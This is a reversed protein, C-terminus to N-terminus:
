NKKMLRLYPTRSVADQTRELSCLLPSNAPSLREVRGRDGVGSCSCGCCSLGAASGVVTCSSCWM